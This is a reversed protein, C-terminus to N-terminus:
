RKYCVKGAATIPLLGGLGDGATVAPVVRLFLVVGADRCVLQALEDGLENVIRGFPQGREVVQGLEVLPEFFGDAPAPFQVQLHGAEDRDDEVEYTVLSHPLPRVILGIQGAVQLCGDVYADVAAPNGGGGGFEAYLAPVNADRAVSLSRGELRGQTGWVIPLNFAHAMARQQQLIKEDTHLVYGVLPLLDYLRGGTHLDIYFDAARIFESLAAAVRETPTGKASGPCVRALDQGDEATRTLRRFAAQNVVPVLTVQGRLQLAQFEQILRRVAQMPEYEDGHVGATILLHPGPTGGLTVHPISLM